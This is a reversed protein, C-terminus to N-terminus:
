RSALANEIAAVLAADEFPKRIYGAAGV